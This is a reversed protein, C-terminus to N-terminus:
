RLRAHSTDLVATHYKQSFFILGMLSKATYTVSCCWRVDTKINIWRREVRLSLDVFSSGIYIRPLESVQCAFFSSGQGDWARDNAIVGDGFPSIAFSMVSALCNLDRLRRGLIIQCGSIHKRSVCREHELKQASRAEYQCPAHRGSTGSRRAYSIRVPLLGL